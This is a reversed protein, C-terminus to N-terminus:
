ARVEIENVVSDVGFVYWADSEAMRRENETRVLGRLTVVANKSTIRLQSVNVFPDKDLVLRVAEVMMEDNDGEPPNIVIGNIVDRSGPVWWALVGALRKHDLGSVTGNLTVVGDAVEVDLSGTPAPPDRLIEWRDAQRQRITLELFAPEQMLAACVHDRIEKDGMRQAPAVHLRDAISDVGQVTAARELALKKAAISEVEGELTLTGNAFEMAIKRAHLGPLPESQLAARVM